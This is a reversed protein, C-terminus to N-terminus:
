SAESEVDDGATAERAEARRLRRVQLRHKERLQKRGETNTGGWIGSEGHTLAWSLCPRKWPCGACAARVEASIPESIGMPHFLEPDMSGCAIREDFQPFVLGTSM